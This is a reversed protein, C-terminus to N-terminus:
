KAEAGGPVGVGLDGLENDTQASLFSMTRSRIHTEKAGSRLRSLM